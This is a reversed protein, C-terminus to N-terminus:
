AKGHSIVPRIDRKAPIYGISIGVLFVCSYVLCGNIIGGLHRVVSFLIGPASVM